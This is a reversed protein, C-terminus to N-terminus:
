QYRYPRTRMAGAGVFEPRALPLAGLSRDPKGGCWLANHQGVGDDAM